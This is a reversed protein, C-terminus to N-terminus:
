HDSKKIKGTPSEDFNLPRPDNSFTKYFKKDAAHHSRRNLITAKLFIVLETVKTRKERAGFAFDFESANPLGERRNHSEEQMLGGMVAVQGSRLRLVSDFERVDVIPIKQMMHDSNKSQQTQYFFPVEKHEVVRSITPRLDLLVTNTKRDISPVVSMILGIPITHLTTSMFDFNSNNANTAYQKQLSPIYIVENKAVKLVASQNNLVTIRPNSLTKVAGFKQITKALVSLNKHGVGISFMGSQESSGYTISGDHGVINWNIGGQFEDNLTVELIKAEILVQSEVSQKLLKLYKKVANQKQQSAYVSILGGQKHISIQGDDGLMQTLNTTLENWFDNKVTGTIVSTSGNDTKSSNSSGSNADLSLQDTFIDTSTAISSTMDRQINLFQINYTKLVPSDYEVKVSDNNITYKLGASDCIDQLVDIFPRDKANCAIQGEIEPAIVINIGASEALRALINVLLMNKTTSLSVKTRFKPSIEPELDDEEENEIIPPDPLFDEIPQSILELSKPNLNKRHSVEKQPFPECASLFLLLSVFKYM